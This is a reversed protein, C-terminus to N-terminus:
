EGALLRDLIEFLIKNMQNSHLKEKRLIEQETQIFPAPKIESKCNLIMEQLSKATVELHCQFGIVNKGIAFIQNKCAESSAILVAGAPLDFTESHWHFVIPQDPLETFLEGNKTSKIKQIPLWGIEKQTNRYVKAGLANAILQAGLCIGVVVKGKEVCQRIFNKEPNLWSFEREDNVSMPGGMIIIWDIDHLSPLKDSEFFRTYSIEFHQKVLWTEIAAMGEFPVHQICHAKMYLKKCHYHFEVWVYRFAPINDTIFKVREPQKTNAGM